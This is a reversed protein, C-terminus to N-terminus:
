RSPADAVSSILSGRPADIEDALRLSVSQGAVAEDLQEGALDIGAVTSRLGSPLVVVPDGVHVRGASIEGAYGRYEVYKPDIAGGQPRLVLQVPLRFGEVADPVPDLNDLLEM